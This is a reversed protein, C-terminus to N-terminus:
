AEKVILYGASHDWIKEQYSLNRPLRLYVDAKGTAIAM